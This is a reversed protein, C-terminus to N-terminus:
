PATSRVVEFKLRSDLWVGLWRVVMKPRLVPLGQVVLLKPLVAAGKSVVIYETKEPAVPCYVRKLVELICRAKVM